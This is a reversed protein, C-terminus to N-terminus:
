PGPTEPMSDKASARSALEREAASLRLRSDELIDLAENVSDLATTIEALSAELTEISPDNM